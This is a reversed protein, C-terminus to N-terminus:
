EKVALKLLEMLQEMSIGSTDKKNEQRESESWRCVNWMAFKTFNEKLEGRLAGTCWTTEQWDKVRRYADALKESRDVLEHFMQTHLKEELFFEKFYLGRESERWEDLRDALADLADPTWKTVPAGGKECGAYPKHGKPAAM